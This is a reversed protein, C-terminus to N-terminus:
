HIGHCLVLQRQRLWLVRFLLNALRWMQPESLQMVEQSMAIPRMARCPAAFSVLRPAAHAPGKSGACGSTGRQVGAGVVDVIM